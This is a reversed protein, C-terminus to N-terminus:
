HKFHRMGTFIMSIGLRNCMDISDKDKISGGPQIIAKIDYKAACEVIDPFPFFGDSALVFGEPTRSLANEAAWIRNTQGGCIGKTVMNNATVIANSKVFKAIKFAFLLDKLQKEDPKKDTVYQIEDVLKNSSGDVEQILLGGDVSSLEYRDEPKRNIKIIRLNKKSTFIDLAKKSFEPAIIVELFTKTMIKALEEDILRNSAIIGGFISVSDAEYAQQYIEVISKEDEFNETACACPTNHKVACIAKNEFSSVVKWAVDIDKINNYSLEKGQYFEFNNFVGMKDTSNYFWASQHPNEGYRLGSIKNSKKYSLNAYTLSDFQAFKRAIAADYAATMSFAKAALYKRYEFDINGKELKDVIEDYDEPDIIVLVDYYNKGAARILSPGGIDIYELLEKEDKCLNQKEFFPYLNVVVLDITEIGLSEITKIDKENSRRALIGAFIKPNLTKVRGDLIEEFGTVTSVEIANIGEDKLIKYTGGTSIINFGLRDLNKAFPVLKDKNYVSILANKM